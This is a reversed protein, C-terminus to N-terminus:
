DNVFAKLTRMSDYFRGCDLSQYFKITQGKRHFRMKDFHMRMIEQEYEEVTQNLTAFISFPKLAGKFEAIHTRTLVKESNTKYDEPIDNSQTATAVGCDFAVAIDTMKNAVRERRRREGSEGVFHGKAHIVDLYDFLVLDIPGIRKTLEKLYEFAQEIYFDDFSEVAKYYIAGGREEVIERRVRNIAALKDKPIFGKEVYDASLGTFAADYYKELQKETGEASFHVVKKGLRANSLGIWRLLTTKGVGSPALFLVSQGKDFGGGTMRDAQLIGFTLKDKLLRSEDKFQEKREEQRAEFTSLLEKYFYDEKLSFTYAVGGEENNVKFAEEHKGQNYLDVVKNLTHTLMAKKIYDELAEVLHEHQSKDVNTNKVKVLWQVVEKYNKDESLAQGIVGITPPTNNIDSHQYIYKFVKKQAETQLYHYKLHEKCMELIRSNTLCAKTFEAVLDNSLKNHDSM